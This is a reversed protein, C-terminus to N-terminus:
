YTGAANQFKGGGGGIRCESGGGVRDGCKSGEIGANILVMHLGSGRVKSDGNKKTSQKAKFSM